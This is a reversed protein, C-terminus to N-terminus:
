LRDRCVSVTEGCQNAGQRRRVPSRGGRGGGGGGPGRVGGGRGGGGARAVRRGGAQSHKPLCCGRSGPLGTFRNAVKGRRIAWSTIRSKPMLRTVNKRSRSIGPSGARAM